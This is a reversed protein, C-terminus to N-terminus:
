TRGGVRDGQVNQELGGDGGKGVGSGNRFGELTRM